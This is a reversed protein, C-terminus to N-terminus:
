GSRNVSSSIKAARDLTRLSLGSAKAKEELLAAPVEGHALERRLFGIAQDIRKPGRRKQGISKASQLPAQDTM